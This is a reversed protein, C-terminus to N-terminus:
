AARRPGRADLTAVLDRRVGTWERVAHRWTIRFPLMGIAGLRQDRRRDADMAARQEHWARSDIEGAVGHERWLLDVVITKGDALTVPANREFAPLGPIERLLRLVLEELQQRTKGRGPDDRYEGLAAALSACGPHGNSRTLIADLREESTRENSLARHVAIAMTVPSEGVGLDLCTREPATVPRGDRHRLDDPILITSRHAAIGTTSRRQSPATIHVRGPPTDILGWHIAASAHSIWGDPVALLAAWERGGATLAGTGLAYVGRRVRHLRGQEVARTLRGATFGCRDLQAAGISGGQARAVLIVRHWVERHRLIWPWNLHFEHV